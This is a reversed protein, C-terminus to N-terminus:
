THFFRFPVHYVLAPIVSLLMTWLCEKWKMEGRHRMVSVLVWSMSLSYPVIAMNLTADLPPGQVLFYALLMGAFSGFFASM